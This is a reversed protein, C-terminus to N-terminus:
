DKIVIKGSSTKSGAKIYYLYVGPKISKGADNVINWLYTESPNEEKFVLEGLLNYILLKAKDPINVFTLGVGDSLRLPIPYAKIDEEQVNESTVNIYSTKTESDNINQDDTVTLVITYAGADTYINQPNQEASNNGDGFDWYWTEISNVSNSADTFDVTLPAIGNRPTASFNAVPPQITSSTDIIISITAIDFFGDPDTVRLEIEGQLSTGPAISANSADFQIDFGTNNNETSWTLVGDNDDPDNVYPALNLNNSGSLITVPSGPFSLLPIAASVEASYDSQVLTDDVAKMRYYYRIGKEIDTDIYATTPHDITALLTSAAPSENKFILYQYINPESNADWSITWQSTQGTLNSINIISFIIFLFTINKNLM